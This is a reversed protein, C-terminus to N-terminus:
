PYVSYLSPSFDTGPLSAPIFPLSSSVDLDSLAFGTYCMKAKEKEEVFTPRRLSEISILRRIIITGDGENRAM